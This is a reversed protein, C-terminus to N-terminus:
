TPPPWRGALADTLQQRWAGTEAADVDTSEEALCVVREMYRRIVEDLSGGPARWALERLLRALRRLVAPQGEGFHLPEELGLRVLSHVDWQPLVLRVVGDEDRFPVPRLPHTALEGLLASVHSLAHVATTPDNTGPSLARVAIDVVKRLSYAVDRHPTREYELQVDRDLSQQVADLDVVAGPPCPWVHAVPTGAVVSDGIRPELVVTAGATAAAAAIRDGDVDTVFGSRRACVATSPESSVSIGRAGSDDGDAPLARGFTARAEDSVDRLMTEVRLSRALHGLFLVLGVVSMLTLVFGATVSLRPVFTPGASEETRVTRLVTLAYVFTGVLLALTTQVVRDTVFTQLLRPSHQSSSLQLAVVTFSFTLGTVSILSGAISTLVDRAASPGGGFVLTLPHEGGPQELVQDLAPLGIGLGIALVIALM